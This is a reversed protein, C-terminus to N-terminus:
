YHIMIMMMHMWQGIYDDVGEVYPISCYVYIHPYAVDLSPPFKSFILNLTNATVELSGKIRLCFHCNLIKTAGPCISWQEM